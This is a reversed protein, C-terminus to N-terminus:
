EGGTFYHYHVPIGHERAYTREANCGESERWKGFLWLEDCSDLLALCNRIAKDPDYTLPDLYGFTHIPSIPIILETTAIKQCILTIRQINEQVQEATYPPAGRLPHAIYIKKPRPPAPTDLEPSVDISTAFSM